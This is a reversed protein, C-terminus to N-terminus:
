DEARTRYDAYYRAFLTELDDIVEKAPRGNLVHAAMLTSTENLMVSRDLMHYSYSLRKIAGVVSEKAPRPLHKPEHVPEDSAAGEDSGALFDAFRLLTRRDEKGLSRYLRNLRREDERVGGPNTIM